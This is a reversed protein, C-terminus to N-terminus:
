FRVRVVPIQLLPGTRCYGFGALIRGIDHLSFAASRLFAYSVSVGKPSCLRSYIHSHRLFGMHTMRKRVVSKNSRMTRATSPSSSQREARSEGNHEASFDDSRQYCM